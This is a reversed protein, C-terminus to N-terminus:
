IKELIRVFTKDTIIHVSQITKEMWELFNNMRDIKTEQKM